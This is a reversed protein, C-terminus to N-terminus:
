VDLNTYELGAPTVLRWWANMPMWNVLTEALRLFKTSKNPYYLSYSGHPAGEWIAGVLEPMSGDFYDTPLYTDQAMVMDLYFTGIAGSLRFKAYSATSSSPILLSSYVRTWETTITETTTITDLLVDDADYLEITLDVSSIDASKIYQSVNM